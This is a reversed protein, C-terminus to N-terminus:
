APELIGLFYELNPFHALLPSDFQTQSPPLHNFLGQLFDIEYDSTSAFAAAATAAVSSATTTFHISSAFTPSSTTAAMKSGSSSRSSASPPIVSTATCRETSLAHHVLSSPPLHHIPRRQVSLVIWDSLAMGLYADIGDEEVWQDGLVM